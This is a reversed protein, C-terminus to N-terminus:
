SSSSSSTNLAAQHKASRTHRLTHQRIHIGGCIDCTIKETIKERNKEYYSKDLIAKEEKHTDRYNKLYEQRAQTARQRKERERRKEESTKIVENNFIAQCKKSELHANMGYRTIFAKCRECEIKETKWANKKREYYVDLFDILERSSLPLRGFAELFLAEDRMQVKNSLEIREEPTIKM